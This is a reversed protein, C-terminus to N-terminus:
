QKLKTITPGVLPLSLNSMDAMLDFNCSTVQGRSCIVLTRVGRLRTMDPCGRERHFREDGYRKTCLRYEVYVSLALCYDLIFRLLATAAERM